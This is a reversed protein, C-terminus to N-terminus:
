TGRRCQGVDRSCVQGAGPDGDDAVGDCDDDLGNCVEVGSVICADEYHVQGGDGGDRLGGDGADGADRRGADGEAVCDLCYPDLGCSATALVLALSSMSLVSKLRLM